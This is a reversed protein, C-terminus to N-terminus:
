ADGDANARLMPVVQVVQSQMEALGRIAAPALAGLRQDLALVTAALQGLDFGLEVVVYHDLAAQRLLALANSNTVILPASPTLLREEFESVFVEIRELAQSVARTISALRANGEKEIFNPPAAGRDGRLVETYWSDFLEAAAEFDNPLGLTTAIAAALEKPELLGFYDDLISM